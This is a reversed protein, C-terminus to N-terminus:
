RPVIPLLIHSPRAGDHFVTQLAPIVDERRDEGLRHGTNPNPELYPFSSSTVDVRIRHGALFVNSTAGTDIVYRESVGPRLPSPHAAGNRHRARLVGEALIRSAGDTHVDCLRVIWDTDTATTAAFLTSRLPGTVEIPRQLVESTYTLVDSRAELPRQDYPGVNIGQVLGPLGVAGGLTPAPNKPDYLFHDPAEGDPPREVSLSGDAKLYWAEPRSRALPWDDEDRWVNQGMVFIRVRPLLPEAASSKLYHDFHQLQYGSLDVAAASATFGFDYEATRSNLLHDWPGILLRQHASAPSSKGRMRSYNTLTGPLFYDYWGGVNLVPTDIAAYHATLADPDNGSAADDRIAEEYWGAVPNERLLPLTTLPRWRALTEIDDSAALIRAMEGSDTAGAMARRRATEPAFFQTILWLVYGLKFAGGVYCLEHMYPPRGINIPVITRLSAPRQGAALWQVLGLYSSGTMGVNGDCWPQHAVWEISDVGDGAEEFIALEGDSAYRGRVDQFVVAFGNEVARVPDLTTNQGLISDKSYPTRVLVAPARRADGRRFVNARTAVGDRMPIVVNKELIIRTTL